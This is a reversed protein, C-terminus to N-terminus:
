TTHVRVPDAFAHNSDLLSALLRPFVNYETLHDLAIWVPNYSGRASEVPSAMQEGTGTGFTGGVITARYYHRPSEEFMEVALLGDLRVM